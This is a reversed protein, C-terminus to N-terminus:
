PVRGEPSNAAGPAGKKPKPPPLKEIDVRIIFKGPRNDAASPPNIVKSAIRNRTAHTNQALWDALKTVEWEDGTFEGTLEMQYVRKDAAQGAVPTFKLDTLHMGKTDPFRHSFEEILDLVNPSHGVGRQLQKLHDSDRTLPVLLADLDDLEAQLQKQKDTRAKLASSGFLFAAVLVLIGLGAAALYRVRNPDREVKAERPQSFNVPLGRGQAQAHLLGVAGAFSGRNGYVELRDFGAFPDLPHVPIALLQELQQRLRNHEGDGAVYLAQVRDRAAALHPQGAYLALNRRIEGLLGDGPNLARTFLLNGDGVVCFEAWTEALTLVAVATGPAAPGPTLLLAGASHLVSAAIGFPRPTIGALKLGAARCLEQYTTLLKRRVVYALARREGGSGAEPLPYYDIVVEDAPDTLEKSAQFRVVGPEEAPAVSPYRVDKLIVRDRGVSVLVPAPKIGAEKLRQRLVQGLIEVITTDPSYQEQWVGARQVQVADRGVNASVVHLVQHDWDLALYRAL